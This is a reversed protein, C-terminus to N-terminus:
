DKKLDVLNFDIDAGLPGVDFAADEFKPRKKGTFNSSSLGLPESPKLWKKDLRRDADLDHYGALAYQGERDVNICFSIPSDSGPVRIRRLRGKKELFDSTDEDDYLEIKVLGKHTAGKVTVRIQMSGAVCSDPMDRPYIPLAGSEHDAFASMAM